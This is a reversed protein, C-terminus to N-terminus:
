ARSRRRASSGAVVLVAVRRLRTNAYTSGDCLHSPIGGRIHFSQESGYEFAESAGSRTEWSGLTATPRAPAAANAPDWRARARRAAVRAAGGLHSVAVCIARLWSVAPRARDDRRTAQAGRTRRRFMPKRERAQGPATGPPSRPRRLLQRISPRREVHVSRLPREDHELRAALMGSRRRQPPGPPPWATSTVLSASLWQHRATSPSTTSATTAAAPAVASPPRETPSPSRRPAESRHVDGTVAAAM